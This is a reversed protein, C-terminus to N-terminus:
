EPSPRPNGAPLAYAGPGPSAHALWAASSAISACVRPPLVSSSAPLVLAHGNRTRRASSIIIHRALLDLPRDPGPHQRAHAQHCKGVLGHEVLQQVPVVEIVLGGEGHAQHRIPQKVRAPEDRHHGPQEQERVRQAPATEDRFAPPSRQQEPRSPTAPDAINRESAPVAAHTRM